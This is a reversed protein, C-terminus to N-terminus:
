NTASATAIDLPFLYVVSTATDEKSATNCQEVIGSAVTSDKHISFM